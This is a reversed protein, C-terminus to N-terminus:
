GAIAAAYRKFREHRNKHTPVINAADDVSWGSNLRSYFTSRNIGNLAAVIIAPNGDSTRLTTRSNLRQQRSTAWRCNNPTYDGDNDIRDISLNESYGNSVAWDRFAAFSSAWEECVSVGLGHHYKHNPHPLSCRAKMGHWISYLRTLRGGHTTSRASTAERALCGCSSVSGSKLNSTTVRTESGCDCLCLWLRRTGRKGDQSIVTLRGFREGALSDSNKVRTM